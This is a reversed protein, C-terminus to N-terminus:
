HNLIFEKTNVLSWLLSAVADTPKEEEMLFDVCRTLEQDTPMRSLSRLYANEAIWMAQSPRMTVDAPEDAEGKLRSRLEDKMGLKGAMVNARKLIAEKQTRAKAVQTPQGSKRATALRKDVAKLQALVREIAAEFQQRQAKTAATSGSPAPWGYTQAVQSVWSTKPDSLWTQVAADNLLFVTQLLSPEDSRDCDCNSERVSRGFVGLAYDTDNAGSLKKASSGTEAHARPVAMDVAQMSYADNVLAMRVADYSTETPLRRLVSHSFNHKDAANTANPQWSRQYAASNLIERHLWKMDFGSNRFGDALYELLPANSPANALNIDDAPHIIGVSFYQAWIRNVLAKAFYPNEPARLWAMLQERPDSRDLEVWEGGLLKAKPTPPAKQRNKKRPPANPRVILEPFPVTIGDKLLTSFERRLLNGKLSTDVDLEKLMEQYESKSDPSLTQQRAQVGGFLQEFNDFDDKSWQDFPHKHCQACQIRVGLFNYAFGIARDEATQFNNRAWYYVLGPRQAFKEGSADQCIQSMDECYERYSEDPRRSEATVIGEVIQDYPMNDEVRKALWAYWQNDARVGQPLFNRLQDENNGTMDCLFTTWRAAYGPRNLLEEIKNARKDASTNDLFQETEEATPLTGTVDLSARRLFESDTCLESPVIGLKELKQGVLEDIATDAALQPYDASNLGTVPRLTLVPVVASDYSVVVHTDGPEGSTVVGDSSMDAIAADNSHFRCLCTVDELTCDDWHAIVQLQQTQAATAFQIEAPQVELRSLKQVRGPKFKAGAQVWNRLVWYEWQGAEFRKGGGHADADIPYALILSELPDDLDVRASSEEMLADHDAKFDYGFLSLQFGGQGQFSGHCARGNCGLRGFLPSVHRQFDPVEETPAKELDAESSEFREMLPALPPTAVDLRPRSKDATDGSNDAAIAQTGLSCAVCLVSALFPVTWRFSNPQKM